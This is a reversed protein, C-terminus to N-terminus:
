CTMSSKWCFDHCTGFPQKTPTRSPSASFCRRKSVLNPGEAQRGDSAASTPPTGAIDKGLRIASPTFCAFRMMGSNAHTHAERLSLSSQRRDVRSCRLRRHKSFSRWRLILAASTPEHETATSGQLMIASSTLMGHAPSLSFLLRRRPQVGPRPHASTSARMGLQLVHLLVGMKISTPQPYMEYDANCASVRLSLIVECAVSAEGSTAWRHTTAHARAQSAGPQIRWSCLMWRRAASCSLLTAAM